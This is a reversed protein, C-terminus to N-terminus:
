QVLKVTYAGAVSYPALGESGIAKAGMYIACWSKNGGQDHTMPLLFTGFVLVQDAQVLPTTVPLGASWSTIPLIVLRAGNGNYAPLTGNNNPQYVTRDTDRNALTTLADRETQKNGNTLNVIDGVALSVLQRQGLIAARIAAASQLEFYGRESSSGAGANDIRAQANDGNCMNNGVRANAPWRLTYEQGPSLGFNPDGSLTHAIVRYPLYGGKPFTAQVLGGVSTAQIAQSAPAGVARIFTLDLSPTATVRAFAVNAPAPNTSWPGTKTTSFEVSTNSASFSATGM